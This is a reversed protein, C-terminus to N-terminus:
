REYRYHIYIGYVIHLVGFGIAWCLLGYSVFCTGIVGLLVEMVGLFKVAGYTFSGAGFLALGYFILSFPAALGVLGNSLLILILLGGTVLPTAMAVIMRRSTANWLKEGRKSSKRQSLFVATGIALLLTGIALSVLQPPLMSGSAPAGIPSTIEDPNFNFVAYSLYAAVLAYIGAMVGAWGSLSLFKSSREMMSRIEAIDGIYDKEKKM